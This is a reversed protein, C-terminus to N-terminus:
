LTRRRRLWGVSAVGIAGLAMAGPAPVPAFKFDDFAIGGVDTNDITIAAIDTTSSSFVYIQSYTAYDPLSESLEGLLSGSRDFFQVRMAGENCGTATFGIVSQDIDYLVTLAGEGVGSGHPWGDPGLGAILNGGPWFIGGSYVGVAYDAGVTADMSLPTVPTGSIQDFYTGSDPEVTSRTQGVLKEGFTIGLASNRLENTPGASAWEFDEVALGSTDGGTTIVAYAQGTGVLIVVAGVVAFKKM